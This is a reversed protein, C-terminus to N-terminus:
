VRRMVTFRGEQKVDWGHDRAYKEATVVKGIYDDMVILKANHSEAARFEDAGHDWGDCSDLYAFDIDGGFGTLFGVSEGLTFLPFDGLVGEENLKVMAVRIHEMDNDVSFFKSGPHEKVWRAFYLTSWGDLAENEPESRRLCGTEVIVIPRSLKHYIEVAYGSLQEGPKM